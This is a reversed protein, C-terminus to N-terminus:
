ETRILRDERRRAERLAGDPQPRDGRQLLVATREGTVREREGMGHDCGVAAVEDDQEVVAVPVDPRERDLRPLAMSTRDGIAIEGAVLPRLEDGAVAVRLRALGEGGARSM